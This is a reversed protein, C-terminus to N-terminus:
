KIDKLFSEGYLTNPIDLYELITKGIDSFSERIGVASGPRVNKGYVLLPIYERSHDTSSTTPDCGHDATIILIDEDNLKELIEPLRVDFEKIANYYGDYDNRHGFMMDFDVLNAWILGPLPEAL